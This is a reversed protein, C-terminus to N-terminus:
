EGKNWLVAGGNNQCLESEMTVSSVKWQTMVAWEGNNLVVWEGKKMASSVYNKTANCVSWQRMIRTEGNKMVSSPIWQKM